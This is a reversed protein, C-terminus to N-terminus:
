EGVTYLFGDVSSNELQMAFLQQYQTIDIIYRSFFLINSIILVYLVNVNKVYKSIFYIPIITFAVYASSHINAGIFILISSIILKVLLKWKHKGEVTIKQVQKKM